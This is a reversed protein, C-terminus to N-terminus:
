RMPHAARPVLAGLLRSALTLAPVAREGDLRDAWLGGAPSSAPPGRPTEQVLSISRKRSASSGGMVQRRRKRSMAIAPPSAPHVAWTTPPPLVVLAVPLPPVDEELEPMVLLEPPKAQLAFGSGHQM